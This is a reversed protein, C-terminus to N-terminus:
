DAQIKPSLRLAVTAVEAWSVTARPRFNGNEDTSLLGLGTALAVYNRKSGTIQGADKFGTEINNSMEGLERYGLSNVVWVALDERLLPKDASLNGKNILLGRGVAQMFLRYDPDDKDLDTFNLKIKQEQAYQDHTDAAAALVRLANRRSIGEDPKIDEKKILGNEIILSIAPAAWHQSIDNAEESINEDTEWLNIMEGSIADVWPMQAFRYILLAEGTLEYNENRPFTYALELPQEARLKAAAEEPSIMNELSVFQSSHWYVAYRLVEGSYADVSLEIKDNAFPIGNALRTFSFSYTGERVEDQRKSNNLTLMSYKEPNIKKIMKRAEELARDYGIDKSEQSEEERSDYARRFGAIKGTYVDVEVSIDEYTENALSYSWYEDRYGSGSRHSEGCKRIEGSFGLFEFFDQAANTVTQVELRKEPQAEDEVAGTKVPLFDQNYCRADGASIKKGYNDLPEGSYADLDLISLLNLKDNINLIYVPAAVTSSQYNYETLPYQYVPCIGIEDLLKDLVAEEPIIEGVPPLEIDTWNYTYQSIQGSVMDVGVSIGDQRVPIGNEVRNWRFHNSTKLDGQLFYISNDNQLELKKMKDGHMKLLFASAIELAKDRNLIFDKGEYFAVGPSYTFTNIEASVANISASIHPMQAQVSGFSSEGWEFYWSSSGEIHRSLHIDFEKNQTIEPFANQLIELAKEQSIIDQGNPSLDPFAPESVAASAIVEVQTFGMLGFFLFVTLLLFISAIKRFM